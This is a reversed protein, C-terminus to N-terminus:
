YYMIFLIPLQRVHEVDVGVLCVFLWKILSLKAASIFTFTWIFDIDFM